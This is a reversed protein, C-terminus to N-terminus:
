SRPTKAREIIGAIRRAENYDHLEARISDAGESIATAVSRLAGAVALVCFGGCVVFWVIEQHTLM